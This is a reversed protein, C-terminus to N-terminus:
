DLKSLKLLDPKLYLNGDSSKSYNSIICEDDDLNLLDEKWSKGDDISDLLKVIYDLSNDNPTFYIRDEVSNLSKITEINETLFAFSFGYEKGKVLLKNIISNDSFNINQSNDLVTFFPFDFFGETIKFNYLDYLIIDYIFKQTSEEYPSLDIIKVKGTYDNLFSWDYKGGKTFPEDEFLDQLSSLINDAKLINLENQLQSLNLNRYKELSKLCIFYLENLEDSSLDSFINDIIKIFRRAVSTNDELKYTKSSYVPYKKFPNFPLKPNFKKTNKNTNFSKHSAKKLVKKYVDSDLVKYKETVKDVINANVYEKNDPKNTQRPNIVIGRSVKDPILNDLNQFNNNTDIIISPINSKSLNIIFNELLHYKQSSAKGDIIINYNKLNTNAFKWYYEENTLISKGVPLKINYGEQSNKISQNKSIEGIMEGHFNFIFGESEIDEYPKTLHKYTKSNFDIILIYTDNELHWIQPSLEYVEADIFNELIPISEDYNLQENIHLSKLLQNTENEM